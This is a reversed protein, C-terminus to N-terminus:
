LSCLTTLGPVSVTDFDAVVESHAMARSDLRSQRAESSSHHDHPGTLVPSKSTVIRDTLLKNARQM